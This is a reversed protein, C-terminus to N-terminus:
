FRYGIGVGFIWPDIEVDADIAGNVTVDSKLLIKKVDFNLVWNECLDFDVGAQMVFGFANDYDMDNIVGGPADEDYFVTYNVGTGVYPHITDNCLPFHYQLTLTPPLLRVSGADLDGAATDIATVTHRTTGAMLELAWSKTLFYTIDLEFSTDSDIDVDGGIANINASEDAMVQIGRVRFLWDKKEAAEGAQASLGILTAVMVLGRIMTASKM